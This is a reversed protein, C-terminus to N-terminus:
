SLLLLLLFTSEQNTVWLHYIPLGTSQCGESLCLKRCPRQWDSLTAGSFPSSPQGLQPLFWGRCKAPFHNWACNQRGGEWIWVPLSDAESTVDSQAVAIVHTHSAGFHPDRLLAPTEWGRPKIGVRCPNRWQLICCRGRCPGPPPLHPVPSISPSALFESVPTNHTHLTQLGVNTHFAWM